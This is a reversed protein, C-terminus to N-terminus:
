LARVALKINWTGTSITGTVVLNAGSIAASLVLGSTTATIDNTRYETYETNTGDTVAVFTGARWASTTSNQAYYEIFLSKLGSVALTVLAQTTAIASFTYTPSAEYVTGTVDIAYVQVGSANNVQLINGTNADTVKM